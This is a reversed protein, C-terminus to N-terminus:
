GVTLKGGEGKALPAPTMGSRAPGSVLSGDEISFVSGHATCTVVGNGVQDIKRGQHPCTTSYAAFKGAEPQAIIFADVIKASGVPIEGPDVEVKQGTASCAALLAAMATGGTGLLFMRRSCAPTKNSDCSM